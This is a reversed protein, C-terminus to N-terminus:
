RGQVASLASRAAQRLDPDQSLAIAQRLWRLASDRDNQALATRGARLYLDAATPTDNALEAARASLALNRALPHYDLLDRRLDAAREAEARAYVVDGQRLALRASLEAADAQQQRGPAVAVTRLARELGVIDGRDDAILGRLFSSSARVSPEAESGAEVQAAAMDATTLQGIRYLAIAEVLKLEVIPATGRRVLEAQTERVTALAAAPQSTQLQAVALDFGLDTIAAADDRVYACPGSPVPRCGPGPAGRRDGIPRGRRSAGLDPRGARRARYSPRLRRPCTFPRLPTVLSDRDPRRRRSGGHSRNPQEAV